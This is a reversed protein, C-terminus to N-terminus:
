GVATLEVSPRRRSQLRDAAATFSSRSRSSVRKSQPSASRRMAACVPCQRPPHRHRNRPCHEITPDSVVVQKCGSGSGAGRATSHSSANSLRPAQPRRRPRSILYGHRAVACPMLFCGPWKALSEEIASALKSMSARFLPRALELAMRALAQLLLSAHTGRASYVVPSAGKQEVQAWSARVGSRHQAYTVADPTGSADLRVQIMEVDGEHTGLDLFGPDDYYMFFWYQLWTVGAKVVVRGHAKNAYGPRAHMARAQSVYDSGVEALYDTGQVSQGTPYTTPHLFALNLALVNATPPGAAALVTGDARKLVNSPRDTIVAAWDTYYSELSDYQVFPRHLALLAPADFGAM